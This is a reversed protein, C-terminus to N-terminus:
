CETASYYIVNGQHMFYICYEPPVNKGGFVFISVALDGVDDEPDLSLPMFGDM